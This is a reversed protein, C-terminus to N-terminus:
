PPTTSDRRIVEAFVEEATQVAEALSLARGRTVEDAYRDGLTLRAGALAIDSLERDDPLLQYGCDDLLLDAASHVRVAVSDLELAHALRAALVLGFATVLLEGLEAGLVMADRQHRAAAVVDGSRMEHEALNNLAFMLTAHDDVQEALAIAELLTNEVHEDGLAQTVLGLQVLADARLAPPLPQALEARAVELAQVCHRTPEWGCASNRSARRATTGTRAPGRRRVRRHPPPGPRSAGAGRGHQGTPRPSQAVTAHLRALAASGRRVRDILQLLFEVAAESQSSLTLEVSYRGLALGLDVDGGEDRDSAEVLWQAMSRMTAQELSLRARWARNGGDAWPLEHLYWEGLRCRVTAAEGADDCYVTAVARVTELLRYRSSGERREISVLSKDVLSWVLDPVDHEDIGDFAVAAAAARCTSAASSSRSGVSSPRSARISCAPLELRSSRAADAPARHRRRRAAAAVGAADRARGPDGGRTLVNIRAAALEIALPMGDLRRCIETLM